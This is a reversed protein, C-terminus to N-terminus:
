AMSEQGHVALAQEFDRETCVKEWDTLEAKIKGANAHLDKCFPLIKTITPTRLWDSVVRIASIVYEHTFTGGRVSPAILAAIDPQDFEIAVAKIVSSYEMPTMANFVQAWKKDNLRKKVTDSPSVAVKIENILNGHSPVVEAVPLFVSAQAAGGEGDFDNANGGVVAAAHGVVVPASTVAAAWEAPPASPAALDIEAESPPASPKVGMPPASPTPTAIATAVPISPQPSAIQAGYSTPTGLYIPVTITPHDICTGDFTIKIKMRHSVQVLAGSYTQLASAPVNLLVRNEGDFVAKHITQLTQQKRDRHSDTNKQRSQQEAKVEEKSMEGWRETRNFLRRALADKAYESHYGATWRVEQKIDVTVSTIRQRSRNKCAFDIIATEGRGIRTNAIRAAMTISGMNFCCSQIDRVIPPVLNSVPQMSLPASMVNFLQEVKHHGGVHAKFKYNILSYGGNRAIYMSSPLDHPLEIQFPFRFQSGAQVNEVQGLNVNVRYISREANRYRTHHRTRRNGNSDTYHTTETYRVRTREKGTIYAEVRVQNINNTAQAYVSGTLTRGAIFNSNPTQPSDLVITLTGNSSSPSNGM